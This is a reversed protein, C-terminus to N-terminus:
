VPQHEDVRVRPRAGLQEGLRRLRDRPPLAEGAAARQPEVGPAERTKENQDPIRDAPDAAPARARKREASGRREPLDSAEAALDVGGLVDIEEPAQLAERTLSAPADRDQVAMGERRAIALQAQVRLTFVEGEQQLHSGRAAPHQAVAIRAIGP